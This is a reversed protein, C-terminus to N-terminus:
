LLNGLNEVPRACALFCYPRVLVRKEKLIFSRIIRNSNSPMSFFLKLKNLSPEFVNSTYWQVMVDVLHCFIFTVGVKIRKSSIEIFIM